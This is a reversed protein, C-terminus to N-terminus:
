TVAAALTYGETAVATINLVDGPAAAFTRVENTGSCAVVTPTGDNVTITYEIGEILRVYYSAGTLCSDSVGYPDVVEISRDCEDGTLVGELTGTFTLTKGEDTVARGAPEGDLNQFFVADDASELIRFVVTFNSGDVTTSVHEALAEDFVYNEPDLRQGLECTPELFALEADTM